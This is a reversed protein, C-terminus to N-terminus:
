PLAPEVDVYRFFDTSPPTKGLQRLLTAVQGRHYTGHNVVHVFADGLARRYDKGDFGRYELPGAMGEASVGEVFEKQGNQVASWEKRLEALTPV